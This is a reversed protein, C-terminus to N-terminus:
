RQGPASCWRPKSGPLARACAIPDVNAPV